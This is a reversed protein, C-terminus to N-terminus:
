MYDQWTAECLYFVQEIPPVPILEDNYGHPIDSYDPLEIIEFEDYLAYPEVRTKCLFHIRPYMPSRDNPYLSHNIHTHLPHIM